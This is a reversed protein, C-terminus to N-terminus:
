KDALSISHLTALRQVGPVHVFVFVYLNEVCTPAREVDFTKTTFVRAAVLMGPARKVINRLAGTAAFRTAIGLLRVLNGFNKFISM